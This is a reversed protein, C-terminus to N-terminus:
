LLFKAPEQCIEQIKGIILHGQAGDGFRHDFDFNLTLIKQAVIKNHQDVVARMKPETIAFIGMFKTIDSLPAYARNMNMKSINTIIITGYSNRYIKRSPDEFEMYYSMFTALYLMSQAICSPLFNVMKLTKNFLDDRNQKVRKFDQSSTRKIDALSRTFCDDVRKLGLNKGEIDVTFGINVREVPIFHGFALKGHYQKLEGFVIGIVKAFFHTYSIRTEPNNKNFEAIFQDIIECNLPIDGMLKGDNPEGWTCIAVKKRLTTKSRKRYSFSGIFYLVFIAMQLGLLKWNFLLAYLYNSVFISVIFVHM